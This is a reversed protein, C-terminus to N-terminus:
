SIADFLSSSTMQATIQLYTDYLNQQQSYETIAELEDVGAVETLQLELNLVLDEYNTSMRDLLNASTGSEIILTSIASSITDTAADANDILTSDVDSDTQDALEQTLAILDNLATIEITPETEPPLAPVEVSGFLDTIPTDIKVSIGGGVDSYLAESGGVYIAGSLNGDQDYQLEIATEAGGAFYNDGYVGEQNIISVMQEISANILTAIDAQTETSSGTASGVRMLETEIDLLVDSISDVKNDIDTLRIEAVDAKDIYSNYSDIQTQITRAQSSVTPADSAREYSVGTVVQQSSTYMNSKLTQLNTGSQSTINLDAIRM